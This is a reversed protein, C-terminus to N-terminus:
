RDGWAARLESESEPAVPSRQHDRAYRAVERETVVFQRGMLRAKLRGNYIQAKLTSPSLGLRAAAEALTLEKM